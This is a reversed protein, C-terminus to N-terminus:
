STNIIMSLFLSWIPHKEICFSYFECLDWFFVIELRDSLHNSTSVQNPWFSKCIISFWKKSNLPAQPDFTSLKTTVKIILWYFYLYTMGTHLISGPPHCETLLLLFAKIWTLSFQSGQLCEFQSLLFFGPCRVSDISGERGRRVQAEQLTM